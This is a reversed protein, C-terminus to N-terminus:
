NDFLIREVEACIAHYIPLHYEQVKYTEREPVALTVDSIKGLEGGGEGTLSVTFMNLAEAVKAANVVNKSNGSTSLAIFVDERKGVAYVLQAFVLEPDVDNAYASLASTLSTLPIAPIGRQLKCADEGLTDSLRKLDEGGPTRKLIFGKLMEGSIHEADAASGGNGAILIKGGHKVSSVIASVAYRIDQALHSLEPYRETLIDIYSKKTFNM